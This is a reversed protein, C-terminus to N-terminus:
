LYADLSCSHDHVIQINASSLFNFRVKYVPGFGGQGLKKEISFNDTIALITQMDFFYVDQQKLEEKWADESTEMTTPTSGVYFM